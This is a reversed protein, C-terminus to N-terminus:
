ANHRFKAWGRGLRSSARDHAGFTTPIEWTSPQLMVLRNAVSNEFADRAENASTPLGRLLDEGAQECWMQAQRRKGSLSSQRFARVQTKLIDCQVFRAPTNSL